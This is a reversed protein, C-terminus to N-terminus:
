LWIFFENKATTMAGTGNENLKITKTCVPKSKLWHEINVSHQKWRQFLNWYDFDSRTLNGGASSFIGRAFNEMGGM